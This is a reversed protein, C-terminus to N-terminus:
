YTIIMSGNSYISFHCTVKELLKPILDKADDNRPEIKIQKSEKEFRMNEQSLLDNENDLEKLQQDMVEQEKHNM